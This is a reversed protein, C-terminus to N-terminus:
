GWVRDYSNTFVSERCPYFEGEIGKIIYDNYYFPIWEHHLKDYVKFVEKKVDLQVLDTTFDKLEQPDSSRTWQCAEIAVPKKQYTGIM